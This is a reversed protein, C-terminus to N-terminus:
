WDPICDPIILDRMPPRNWLALRFAGRSPEHCRFTATVRPPCEVAPCQLLVHVDHGRTGQMNIGGGLPLRIKAKGDGRWSWLIREDFHIAADVTGVPAHLWVDINGVCDGDRPIAYFM